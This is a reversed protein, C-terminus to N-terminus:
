TRRRARCDRQTGLCQPTRSPVPDFCVIVLCFLLRQRPPEWREQLIFVIQCVPREPKSHVGELFLLDYHISSLIIVTREDGDKRLLTERSWIQWQRHMGTAQVQRGWSGAIGLPQGQVSQRRHISPDEKSMGSEALGAPSAV